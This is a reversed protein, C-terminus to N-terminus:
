ASHIARASLISWREPPSDEGSRGGGAASRATAVRMGLGLGEDLLVAAAVGCLAAMLAALVGVVDGAHVGMGAREDIVAVVPGWRQVFVVWWAAGAYAVALSGCAASGLLAPGARHHHRRM